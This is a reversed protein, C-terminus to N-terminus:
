KPRETDSNRHRPQTTGGVCNKHMSERRQAEGGEWAWSEGQEHAQADPEVRMAALLGRRHVAVVLRLAVPHRARVFRGGAAVM